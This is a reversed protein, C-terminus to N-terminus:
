GPALRGLQLDLTRDGEGAEIGQTRSLDKVAGAVDEIPVEADGRHPDCHHIADVELRRLSGEAAEGLTNRAAM